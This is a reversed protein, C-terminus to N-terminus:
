VPAAHTRPMITPSPTSSATSGNPNGRGCCGTNANKSAPAPQKKMDDSPKTTPMQASFNSWNAAKWFKKMM